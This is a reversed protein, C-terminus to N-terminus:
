EFHVYIDQNEEAAKEGAKSFADQVEEVSAAESIRVTNDSGMANMNNASSAACTVKIRMPSFIGFTIGTVIQNVFTHETEVIAVGNACQEAAYVTAPPILGNIWSTAFPMDIVQGSPTLGTEIRAHFCGSLLLGVILISLTNTIRLM